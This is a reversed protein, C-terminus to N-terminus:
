RIGWRYGAQDAVNRIGWRYGAQDAVNRIGWRYGAQDAVNRIGWRYGAQDAINRIGWRYGAQDAVNRIGWRYGAQVAVHRVELASNPSSSEVQPIRIAQNSADSSNVEARAVIWKYGTHAAHEKVWTSEGVSAESEPSKGWKYGPSVYKQQHALTQQLTTADANTPSNTDTAEASAYGASIMLTFACSIGMKTLVSSDRKMDM